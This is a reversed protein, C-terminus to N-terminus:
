RDRGNCVAPAVTRRWYGFGSARQDEHDGKLPDRIIKFDHGAAQLVPLDFPQPRLKCVAGAYVRDRPKYSVYYVCFVPALKIGSPKNGGQIGPVCVLRCRSGRDICPMRIHDNKVREM